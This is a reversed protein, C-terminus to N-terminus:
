APFSPTAAPTWCGHERVPWGVIDAEDGVGIFRGYKIAVSKAISFAADATVIRANVVIMDAHLAALANSSPM